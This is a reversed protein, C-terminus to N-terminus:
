KAVAPVMIVEAYRPGQHQAVSKRALDERGCWGADLYDEYYGAARKSEVSAVREARQAAVYAALTPYKAVLDRREQINAQEQAVRQAQAEPTWAQAYTPLHAATYDPRAAERAYYAYNDADYKTDKDALALDYEYSPRVMVCHTYTRETSRTHVTGNPATATYKTKAM